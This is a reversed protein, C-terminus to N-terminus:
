RTGYSRVDRRMDNRVLGIDALMRDDLHAISQRSATRYRLLLVSAIFSTM